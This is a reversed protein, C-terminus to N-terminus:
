TQLVPQAEFFCLESLHLHFRRQCESNTKMVQFGTKGCDNKPAPCVREHVLFSLHKEATMINTHKQATM